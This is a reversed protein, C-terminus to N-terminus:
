QVLVIGAFYSFILISTALAGWGVLYALFRSRSALIWMLLGDIALFLGGVVAVGYVVLNRGLIYGGDRAKGVVLVTFSAADSTFFWGVGFGWIGLSVGFLLALGYQSCFLKLSKM